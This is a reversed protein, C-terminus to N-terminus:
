ATEANQLAPNEVFGSLRVAKAPLVAALIIKIVSMMLPPSPNVTILLKFFRKKEKLNDLINEFLFRCLFSLSVRWELITSIIVAVSRTMPVTNKRAASFLLVSLFLVGASFIIADTNWLVVVLVAPKLETSMDLNLGAVMSKMINSMNIPAEGPEVPPPILVVVKATMNILMLVIILSFFWTSTELLVMGLSITFLASAIKTRKRPMVKREVVAIMNKSVPKVDICINKSTTEAEAVTPSEVPMVEDSDIAEFITIIIVINRPRIPGSVRTIAIVMWRPLVRAIEYGLSFIITPYIIFFNRIKPSPVKPLVVAEL